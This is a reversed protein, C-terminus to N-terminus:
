KRRRNTIHLNIYIYVKTILYSCQCTIDSFYIKM